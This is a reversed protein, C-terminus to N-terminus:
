EEERGATPLPIVQHFVRVGRRAEPPMSASVGTLVGNWEEPDMSSLAQTVQYLTGKVKMAQFARDDAVALSVAVAATRNTENAGVFQKRLDGDAQVFRHTFGVVNPCLRRETGTDAGSGFPSEQWSFARDSRVLYGESDGGAGTLSYEVYSLHRARAQQGSGSLVGQVRTSMALRDESTNKAFGPLDPLPLSREIDIRIRTMLARAATFCDSRGKGALWVRSVDGMVQASFITIIALIGAAVMLEALSMGARTGGAGRIIQRM